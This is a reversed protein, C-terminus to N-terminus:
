NWRHVHGTHYQSAALCRPPGIGHRSAALPIPLFLLSSLSTSSSSHLLVRWTHALWIHVLTDVRGRGLSASKTIKMLSKWKLDYEPVM